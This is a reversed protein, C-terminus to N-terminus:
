PLGNTQKDRGIKIADSSDSADGVENAESPKGYKAPRPYRGKARSTMKGNERTDCRRELPKPQTRLRAYRSKAESSM